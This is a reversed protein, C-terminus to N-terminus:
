PGFPHARQVDAASRGHGLQNRASLLFASHAAARDVHGADHAHRLGEAEGTRSRSSRLACMERTRSRNTSPIRRSTGPETRPPWGSSRRGPLAWKVKSPAGASASRGRRSRAPTCAEAPAAHEEPECSGLWTRRAMPRGRERERPTRKVKPLSEESSSARKATEATLSQTARRRVFHNKSSKQANKASIENKASINSPKASHVPPFIGRLRLPKARAPPPQFHARLTYLDPRVVPLSFFLGCLLYPAPACFASNQLARAPPAAFAANFNQCVSLVFSLFM